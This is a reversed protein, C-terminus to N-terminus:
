PEAYKMVARLDAPRARRLEAWLDGVSALRDAFTPITVDQPSLGAEVETWTLPASVGAWGNARASYVSALTKGRMNQMYDVYVRRGRAAVSREVTAHRPHKRAVMTAVIQAYLLGAQFPTGRPMPVFVHVGRSGSTKAFASAGLATLEDRVRLAVDLVRRFPLGEPPDLDIAIADIEDLAPVRSFWPDQSIAALQSAYFLAALSGGVIHPRSGDSSEVVTVDVGAPLREAARHQFFPKADVGNPYRKMVLPRGALAPLIAAAARAYHRFLDGKTLKLGPWFIKRLNTVELRDGGPLVLTGNGGASEIADIQDLLAAEDIDPPASAGSREDREARSTHRGRVSADKGPSQDKVDGSETSKARKQLRTTLSAASVRPVDGSQPERRVSAATVDDRMGLYTPHRLKGDHTWETFKVECVLAPAVWHSRQLPRPLNIFPSASSKVGQLQTWVRDLEAGSFGTGVQGVHVLRGQEDHVGLLLAGFRHRTGKPATWGGIVCTQQRVLKLKCWDPTRKGSAYQSDIRKAILGEWGADHARAQLARGDGVAQESIRVTHGTRDTFARELLARRARLPQSRFDAEGEMLLDFAVFAVAGAGGERSPDRLHVRSQLDLFTTPLGAADVAVIEGDVLLPKRIAVFAQGLAAAVDPFQTHKENGLRSWIRVRAPLRRRGTRTVPEIAVLARIGDYKPEYAFDASELPVDGISALMPRVRAPDEPWM